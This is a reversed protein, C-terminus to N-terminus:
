CGGAHEPICSGLTRGKVRSYKSDVMEVELCGNQTNREVVCAAIHSLFDAFGTKKVMAISQLIRWNETAREGIYKEAVSVSPM